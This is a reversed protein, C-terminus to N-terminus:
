FGEIAGEFEELVVASHCGLPALNVVGGKIKEIYELIVINGNGKVNFPIHDHHCNEKRNSGFPVGNPKFDYIKLWFPIVNPQFDYPFSDGRDYGM